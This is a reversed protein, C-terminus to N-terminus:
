FKEEHARKEGAVVDGISDRQREVFDKGKELMEGARDTLEGAQHKLQERGDDVRRRIYERTDEGSYPALLTAAFAGIGIGLLLYFIENNTKM